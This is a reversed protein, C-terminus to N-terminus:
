RTTVRASCFGSPVASSEVSTTTDEASDRVSGIYRFM